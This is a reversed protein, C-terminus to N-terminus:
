ETETTQQETQPLERIAIIDSTTRGGKYPENVFGTQSLLISSRGGDLNYARAFGLDECLQSLQEM